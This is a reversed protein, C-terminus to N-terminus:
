PILVYGQHDKKMAALQATTYGFTKEFHPYDPKKWDGGWAWGAAKFIRVVEMWDAIKDEDFDKGIDWSITKGNIILAFDVALGYNHYSRGGKVNTVIKGPKTRGQAYLDDQEKTTRLTQTIRCKAIGKLACMIEAYIGNVEARVKPHLLQIRSLSIKDM